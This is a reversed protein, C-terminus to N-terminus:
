RYYNFPVKYDAPGLHHFAKSNPRLDIFAPVKDFKNGKNGWDKTYHRASLM